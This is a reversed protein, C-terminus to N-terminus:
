LVNDKARVRAQDNRMKVKFTHDNNGVGNSADEKGMFRSYEVTFEPDKSNNANSM